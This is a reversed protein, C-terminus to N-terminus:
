NQSKETIENISEDKFEEESDEIILNAKPM